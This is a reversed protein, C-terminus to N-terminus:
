KRKKQKAPKEPRSTDYDMVRIAPNKEKAFKCIAAVESRKFFLAKEMSSYGIHLRVYDAHGRDETVIANIQEWPFFDYHTTIQMNYFIELGRSTLAADKKTILTLLYLVSFALSVVSLLPNHSRSSIGFLLLVAVLVWGGTQVWQKRPKLSSQAPYVPPPLSEWPLTQKM